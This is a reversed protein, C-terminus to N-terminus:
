QCHWVGYALLNVQDMIKAYEKEFKKKIDESVNNERKTNGWQFELWILFDVNEGNDKSFGKSLELVIKRVTKPFHIM